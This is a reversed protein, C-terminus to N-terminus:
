FGSKKLTEVWKDIRGKSLRAQNEQDLCLGSWENDGREARSKEYNYGERSTHGVVKAGRSEVLEAFIGVGDNFNEPYFKQDGLGFIAFTKGSLDMDEIAPVLEDWYNPLEGDWWTAVGIIYKDFQLFNEETVEEANVVELNENDLAQIIKEAVKSTKNTHFSYFIGIKSM